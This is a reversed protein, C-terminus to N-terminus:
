FFRTQSGVKEFMRLTVTETNPKIEVCIFTYVCGTGVVDLGVEEQIHDELTVMTLVHEPNNEVEKSIETIIAWKKTVGYEKLDLMHPIWKTDKDKYYFETIIVWKKTVGYEKLDIMHPIWKTDKDKYYFLDYGEPSESRNCTM